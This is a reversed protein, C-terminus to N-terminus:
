AVKRPSMLDKGVGGHEATEQKVSRREPLPFKRKFFLWISLVILVVSGLAYALFGLYLALLVSAASFSGLTQMVVINLGVGVIVLATAGAIIRQVTKDTKASIFSQQPPFGAKSIM